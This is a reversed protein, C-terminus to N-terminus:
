LHNFFTDDDVFDPAYESGDYPEDYRAPLQRPKNRRKRKRQQRLVKESHTKGIFAIVYWMGAVIPVAFIWSVVNEVEHV